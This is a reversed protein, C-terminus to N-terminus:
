VGNLPLRERLLKKLAKKVTQVAREAAGNSSPSYPAITLHKIGNCLCFMKFESSTFSPGNDSVIFYLIGHTSFTRRLCKILTATKINNLAFLEIWKSYTDYRIHKIVLFIKGLFPDAFDAHIRTWPAKSREWHHVPAKAPMNQNIQCSKCAKVTTEIDTDLGPWWVYSRALAIMRVIGPHGDHLEILIKEKLQHPVVVRRGWILCGDDVALEFRRCVYPKYQEGLKTPWGSKVNEIVSAIIPDRQSFSSIEAATVPSTVLENIYVNNNVKSYENEDEFRYRSFFDANLNERGAKYKLTYYYASLLLAWRQYRAAAMNPIAKDESFLGLLPKHDTYLHFHRGFLYQHFRKIAYIISLAEKEIQSYNREAKSLTRSAFTIRKESGDPFEHSLVAGLGYPSADCALILPKPPDYHALYSSECLINKAKQFAINQEDGWEWKLDKRLLKHLPELVEAFNRFHRHYYNLLGLFSKLESVNQPIRANKISDIKEKIPYVGHKNIKFGLYFVELQMFSCKSLKLKLGSDHLIKLVKELNVLHEKSNKGSVLIDDSRVKVFPITALRNELQRQFIGSASHVGFQLRTPQFLGKHTNITILERSGPSLVLQQCAQSLDLKSFEGGGGVITAFIDETKPVPYIDCAAAKNVTQKYDGCIRVSGDDKM